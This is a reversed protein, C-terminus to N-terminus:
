KDWYKEPWIQSRLKKLPKLLGIFNLFDRLYSIIYTLFIRWALPKKRARFIRYMKRNIRWNEASWSHYPLNGIWWNGFEDLSREADDRAEPLAKRLLTNIAYLEEYVSARKRSKTRQTKQHVRFYNLEKNIFGLDYYLLIKAYLHWDGNLRFKPDAGNVEQYAKRRILIGSANPIPNHNFLWQQCAEKGKKVFDSQWANTKFIFALNEAYSNLNQGKEDVMMSHCYAIGMQPHQDMLNVMETLFHAECYDDSEAIWLYDGKAIDAGKNWQVFPSGSNKENIILQAAPYKAAFKKLLEPSADKSGDDLLIVEYDKFSQAEISSLRKELYAEHQYNPVIISVKPM